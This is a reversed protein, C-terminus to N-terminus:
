NKLKGISVSHGKLWAAFETESMSGDALALVAIVAEAEPAKLIWGNLEQFVAAAVFGTRKNGDVFPHNRVIGYAYAASLDFISKKSYAAQHKPRALASSLLGGDHVGESGGYEALMEAHMALVESESLWHWSM